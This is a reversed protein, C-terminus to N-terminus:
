GLPSPGPDAVVEPCQYGADALDRCLTGLALRWVGDVLLVRGIEWHYGPGVRYLVAAETPSVFSVSDFVPALQPIFPEVVRRDRVERFIRLALEPRELHAAKNEDYLNGIDYVIRFATLADATAAPADDPGPGPPPLEPKVMPSPAILDGPVRGVGVTSPVGPGVSPPECQSGIGSVDFAWAKTLVVLRGDGGIAPVELETSSARGDAHESAVNVKAPEGVPLADAPVLLALVTWGDAPQTDLEAFSGRDVGDAPSTLTVVVDHSFVAVLVMVVPQDTRPDTTPITAGVFGATGRDADSTPGDFPPSQYSSGNADVEVSTNFTCEDPATWGPREVPQYYSADISLQIGDPTTRVTVDTDAVASARGVMAFADREDLETEVVQDNGGAGCAAAGALVLAVVVVRLANM